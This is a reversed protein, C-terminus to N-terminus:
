ARLGLGSIRAIERKGSGQEGALGTPKAPDQIESYRQMTDSLARVPSELAEPRFLVSEWFFSVRCSVSSRTLSGPLNESKCLGTNLVEYAPVRFAQLRSGLGRFVSCEVGFDIFKNM